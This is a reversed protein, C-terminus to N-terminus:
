KKFSVGHMIHVEELTRKEWVFGIYIISLHRPPQEKLWELTTDIWSPRARRAYPELWIWSGDSLKTPWWAYCRRWTKLALVQARAIEVHQSVTLGWRM